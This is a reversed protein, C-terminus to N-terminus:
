FYTCIFAVNLIQPEIFIDVPKQTAYGHHQSILTALTTHNTYLIDCPEWRELNM